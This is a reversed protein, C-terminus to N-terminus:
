FWEFALQLEELRQKFSILQEATAVVHFLILRKYVPATSILIVLLSEAREVKLMSPASM